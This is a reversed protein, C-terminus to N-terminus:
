RTAAAASQLAAATEREIMQAIPMRYHNRDWFNHQDRALSDDKRYDLLVTNPRGAALARYNAKCQDLEDAAPTGPIPLDVYYHPVMVLAIKTSAPAVAFFDRLLPVAAFDGTGAAASPRYGKAFDEAAKAERQRLEPEFDVYGDARFPREAGTMVRIKHVVADFGRMNILAELYAIRSQGYLWFPFPQAQDLKGNSQCWTSDIGMVLAKLAPASVGDHHRILWRAVALQETPGTYTMTLSVFRWGTLATLREPNLLQMTSNGTVAAEAGPARALSAGVLRQGFGPVGHEGFLAFRGTDYPDFGAIVVVALLAFLVCGVPYAWLM